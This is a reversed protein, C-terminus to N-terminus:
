SEKLDEVVFYRPDDIADEIVHLFRPSAKKMLTKCDESLHKLTINKGAAQYKEVLMFLAELASHDSIRAEM